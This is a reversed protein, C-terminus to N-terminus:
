VIYPSTLLLQSMGFPTTKRQGPVQMSCVRDHPRQSPSTNQVFYWRLMLMMTSFITHVLLAHASSLRSLTLCHLYRRAKDRLHRITSKLGAPAPMARVPLCVICLVAQSQLVRLICLCGTHLVILSCPLAAGQCPDFNM